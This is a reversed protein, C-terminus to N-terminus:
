ILTPEEDIVHTADVPEDGYGLFTGDNIQDVVRQHGELAEAETSYRICDLDTGGEGAVFVMTEFILPPGDGFSHDLGLWVTSVWLRGVTTEAVRKYAMDAHLRGWEEITAIPRGQRDYRDMM